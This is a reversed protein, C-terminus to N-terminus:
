RGRVQSKSLAALCSAQKGAGAIALPRRIQSTRPRGRPASTSRARVGARGPLPPTRASSGPAARVRGDHADSTRSALRECGPSPAGRRGVDHEVGLATDYGVPTMAEQGARALFQSDWRAGCRWRVPLFVNFIDLFISAAIPVASEVGARRLRNIDFITFGGFIVLGAIAYILNAQPTPARRWPM